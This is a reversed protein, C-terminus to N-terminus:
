VAPCRGARRVADRAEHRAAGSAIPPVPHLVAPRRTPSRPRAACSGTLPRVEPHRDESRVSTAPMATTRRDCRTACRSGTTQANAPRTGRVTHGAADARDTV